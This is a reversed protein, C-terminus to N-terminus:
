ANNKLTNLYRFYSIQNYFFPPKKTKEPIYLVNNTHLIKILFSNLQYSNCCGVARKM